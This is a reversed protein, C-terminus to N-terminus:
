KNERVFAAITGVNALIKSAEERDAIEVDFDMQLMAVVELVDVSDLGLGEDGFLSRSDEIDAPVVDLELVEVIKEKIQLELSEMQRVRGAQNHSLLVLPSKPPSYDCCGLVPSSGNQAVHAFMATLGFLAELLAVEGVGKQRCLETEGGIDGALM